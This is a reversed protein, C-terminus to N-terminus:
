NNSLVQNNIQYEIPPMKIKALCNGECPMYFHLPSPLAARRPGNHNFSYLMDMKGAQLLV